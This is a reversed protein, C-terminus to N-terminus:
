DKLIRISLVITQFKENISASLLTM